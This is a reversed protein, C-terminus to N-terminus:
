PNEALGLKPNTGARRGPMSHARKLNSASAEPRSIRPKTQSGTGTGTRVVQGANGADSDRDRSLLPSLTCYPCRMALAYASLPTRVQVESRSAQLVRRQAAPGTGCPRQVARKSLRVECLAWPALERAATEAEPQNTVATPKNTVATRLMAGVPASSQALDSCLAPLAM